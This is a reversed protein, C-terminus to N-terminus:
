GSPDWSGTPDDWGRSFLTEPSSCPARIGLFDLSFSPFLPIQPVDRPLPPVDRGSSRRSGSYRPSCPFCPFFSFLAGKGKEPPNREHRSGSCLSLSTWSERPNPLPTPAMGHGEASGPFRSHAAQFVSQIRSTKRGRKNTSKVTGQNRSSFDPLFKGVFTRQPNQTQLWGLTSM